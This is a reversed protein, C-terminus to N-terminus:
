WSIAELHRALQAASVGWISTSINSRPALRTTSSTNSALALRGALHRRRITPVARPSKQFGSIARLVALPPTSSSILGTYGARLRFTTLWDIKTQCNANPGLGGGLTSCSASGTAGSWDFDGELGVLVWDGFGAYNIGLTGGVVGGNAAFNGTTGTADTWDSRGIGYGGNLGIYVGGWNVPPSVPYYSSPPSPAGGPLPLDAALAHEAGLLSLSLVLAVSFSKM